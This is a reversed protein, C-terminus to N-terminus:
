CKLENHNWNHSLTFVDIAIYTMRIEIAWTFMKNQNYNSTKIGIWESKVEYWNCGM